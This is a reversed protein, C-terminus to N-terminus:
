RGEERAPQRGAINAITGEHETFWASLKQEASPTLHEELHFSDPICYLSARRANPHERLTGYEVSLHSSYPKGNVRFSDQAFSNEGVPKLTVKYRDDDFVYLSTIEFAGFPTPLLAAGSVLNNEVPEISVSM